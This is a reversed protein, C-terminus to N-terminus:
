VKHDLADRVMGMYNKLAERQPIGLSEKRKVDAAALLNSVLEGLADLEQKQMGKAESLSIIIDVTKTYDQETFSENKALFKIVPLKM